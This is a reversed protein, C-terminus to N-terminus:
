GSVAGDPYGYPRVYPMPYMGPVGLNYPSRGEYFQQVLSVPDENFIAPGTWDKAADPDPEILEAGALFVEGSVLQNLMVQAEDLLRKGYAHLNDMEGAAAVDTLMRGSALLWNIKKVYLRAPRYKADPDINLPTVYLHGLATDIEEAANKIYQVRSTYSPEAIDGTRLDEEACYAGDVNAV